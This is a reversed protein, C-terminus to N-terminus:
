EPIYFWSEPVSQREGMWTQWPDVAVIMPAEGEKPFKIHFVIDSTSNGQPQQVEISLNHTNINWGSVEFELNPDTKFTKQGGMVPLTTSGITLTFPLTGGLHRVVAKQTKAGTNWSSLVDNVYVPTKATSETVDVVIDNFDFDNTDGLDEIMYRVTKSEYVTEGEKIEIPKPVKKGYVLLVLDNMDWDSDKKDADECGIIMAENGALNSPVPCDTLALMMGNVSTMKDGVDNRYVTRVGNNWENGDETIDLYFYMEAGVPLNKFTYPISRIATVKNPGSWDEKWRDSGDTNYFSNWHGYGWDFWQGHMNHWQDNDLDKIQISGTGTENQTAREDKAPETGGLSAFNIKEWLLIDVGDVVVHLNWMAGAQGQFIPVITFENGPVTMYFPKGQSRHDIGEVLKEQMWSVTANEVEYWNGATFNYDGGARTRAENRYGNGFSYYSTKSSFDWSQNLDVNPYKKVFNDAFSAKQNTEIAAGGNFLDSNKSCATLVAAALIMMLKTINTKM